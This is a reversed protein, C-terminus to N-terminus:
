QSSRSLAINRLVAYSHKALFYGIVVASAGLLDGVFFKTSEQIFPGTYLGQQMVNLVVLPGNFLCSIVLLAVLYQWSLPQDKDTPVPDVGVARIVWYAMVPALSSTISFVVITYLTAGPFPEFFLSTVFQALFLSPLVWHKLLIFGLLRIGHPIFLYIMEERMFNIQLGFVLMYAM